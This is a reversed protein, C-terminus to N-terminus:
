DNESASRQAHLFSQACPQPIKDVGTRGGGGHARSSHDAICMCMCLLAICQATHHVASSAYSSTRLTVFVAGGGGSATEKEDDHEGEM